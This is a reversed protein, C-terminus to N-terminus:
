LNYRSDQSLLTCRVPTDASEHFVVCMKGGKAKVLESLAGADGNSAAHIRDCGWLAHVQGSSCGQELMIDGAM